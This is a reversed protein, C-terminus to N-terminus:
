GLSWEANAKAYHEFNGVDQWFGEIPFASLPNAVEIMETMDTVGSFKGPLKPSLAYIGANVMHNLIPKERIGQFIDGDFKSVGYHIQEQYLALGVTLEARTTLHKDILDAYRVDALVDGNQVIIAKDFKELQLAGATGLAGFPREDIYKIFCGHKRGDGFYEMILEAKYNVAIWIDTLGQYVMSHIIQELIPKGGVPLLPKPSKETLPHLRLGRGGAMIVVPTM